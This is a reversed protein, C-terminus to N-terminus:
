SIPRTAAPALRARAAPRARACSGFGVADQGLAARPARAL